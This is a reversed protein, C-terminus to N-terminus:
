YTLSITRIIGDRTNFILKAGGNTKYLYVSEDRVLWPEGYIQQLIDVNMGVTVGDTTAFGNNASITMSDVHNVGDYGEVFHIKVSKGYYWTTTNTGYRSDYSTESREPEGYVKKVYNMTADVQIGSLAAQESGINAAFCVSMCMIYFLLSIIFKKM